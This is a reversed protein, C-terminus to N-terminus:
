EKMRRLLWASLEAAEGRPGAVTVAQTALHRLVRMVEAPRLQAAPCNDLLSLMAEGPTLERPQWTAGPQYSTAIILSVPVPGIGCAGGLSEASPRRPLQGSGQRLSLRKPFPFVQGSEDVVAFEDSYYLAGAQIMAAVLTSKGSMSRGPIVVACGGLAVVGAHLFLHERSGVAVKFRLLSELHELILDLRRGQGVREAGDFLQHPNAADGETGVVLSALAEVEPNPSLQWGPPLCQRVAALVTPDNIRVGLRVGLCELVIGAPWELSDLLPLTPRPEKLRPMAQDPM